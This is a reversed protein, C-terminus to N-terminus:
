HAHWNSGDFLYLVDSTRDYRVSGAAPTDGPAGSTDPLVLDGDAYLPKNCTVRSNGDDVTLMTGNGAGGYDGISATGNKCDVISDAAQMKAQGADNIILAVNGPSYTFVNSVADLTLYTNGAFAGANNYQIQTDSGGPTGGGGTASVVVSGPDSMDLTVNSGAEILPPRPTLM